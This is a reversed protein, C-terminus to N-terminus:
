ARQVTVPFPVAPRRCPLTALVVRPLIIQFAAKSVLGIDGEETLVRVFSLPM